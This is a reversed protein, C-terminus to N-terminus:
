GERPKDQLGARRGARLDPRKGRLFEIIVNKKRHQKEQFLIKIPNQRHSQLIWNLPFFSYFVTEEFM